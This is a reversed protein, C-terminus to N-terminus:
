TSPTPGLRRFQTVSHGQTPPTIELRGFVVALSPRRATRSMRVSAVVHPTAAASVVLFSSAMPILWAQCLQCHAGCVVLRRGSAAVPQSAGCGRARLIGTFLRHTSEQAVEPPRADSRRRAPDCQGRTRHSGPPAPAAPVRMVHVQPVACRAAALWRRAPKEMGSPMTRTPRNYPVRYALLGTLEVLCFLPPDLSAHVSEEGSDGLPDVEAMPLRRTDAYLLGVPFRAVQVPFWASATPSGVARAGGSM